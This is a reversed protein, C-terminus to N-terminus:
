AAPGVRRSQEVDRWHAVNRRHAQYTDAFVHGGTGDAVFFLDGTHAPALAATLAARGPNAIPTPPLGGFVYTNYPSRNALESVRLGHGLAAGGSVGYIVTPDSELRMGKKLRNIFVAAIRPREDPRGTEKEVVSALIVAEDPSAYPLGPMRTAWLQTLLRDRAEAMRQIVALRAEDRRVAYTDPLLSGEPPDSLVGTLYVTRRLIEAVEHSTLGEPITVLHRVVAGHRIASLVANLSEGAVFEYEGAKLDHGAGTIVAATMFVARSGIVHADKLRRAIGNLGSGPTLIVDVSPRGSISPGPGYVMILWLAAVSAFV